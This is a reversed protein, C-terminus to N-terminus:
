RNWLSREEMSLVVGHFDPFVTASTVGECALRKLLEPAQDSPLTQKM